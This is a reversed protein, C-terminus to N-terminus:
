DIVAFYPVVLPDKRPDYKPWPGPNGRVMVSFSHGHAKQVKYFLKGPQNPVAFLTVTEENDTNPELVLTTGAGVNWWRGTRKDQLALPGGDAPTEISDISGAALTAGPQKVTLTLGQLAALQTRDVLAFMRHRINRGEAAGIEAGLKVPRAKEDTVEFFGVTLFVAFCNSRTTVNNYLKTLLEYRQYPHTFAPLKETFTFNLFTFTKVIEPELLRQASPDNPDRREETCFLTNQLGRLDPGLPDPGRSGDNIPNSDASKFGTGFGTFPADALGLSPKAVNLLGPSRARLLRWYVTLPDASDEFRPDFNKDGRHVGPDALPKFLFDQAPDTTFFCNGPQADCLALFVEPDYLTNINVKGPLRGGVAVGQVRPAATGAEVMEFLRYLLTSGALFPASDSNPVFVGNDFHRTYGHPPHWSVHLLEVPSILPRDLHVPWSFPRGLQKLLASDNPNKVMDAPLNSRFYNHRFFTHQPQGNTLPPTPFLPTPLAQNGYPEERGVSQNDSPKPTEPTTGFFELALNVPVADMYDVTQYPNYPLNPNFNRPDEVPDNPPLNPCLLRRLVLVQPPTIIFGPGPPNVGGRQFTMDPSLLSCFDAGLHPDSAPRHGIKPGLVFFGANQNPGPAVGFARNNPLVAKVAASGGFDKVTANLVSSSKGLVNEPVAADELAATRAGGGDAIQLIYPSYTPAGGSAPVQLVAEGGGSAAFNPDKRPLPNVLEVWTNVQYPQTAGPVTNKGVVRKFTDGVPNEMQIYAENILLRPLETGFVMRKNVDNPSAFDVGAPNNPDPNWIFPTSYDDEDIYDVINVAIQALFRHPRLDFSSLPPRPRDLRVPGTLAVLTNYIERALDTRDKQAALFQKGVKPDNWDLRRTNPDAAPYPTLARNLDIRPLQATLGRWTLPDYESRGTPPKLRNRMDVPQAFAVGPASNLHFIDTDIIMPTAGPRDLDWSLTTVLQRTRPDALNKPLLRSLDGLLADAGTGGSRLLAATESPPFSRNRLDPRVANYLFPHNAPILGNDYGNPDFFPFCQYPPAQLVNTTTSFAPAQPLLYPLTPSGLARGPAPFNVVCDFDTPAYAHGRTSFVPAPGAPVRGAGYRGLVRPTGNAPSGLLLNRYETGATLVRAPNVEWPGWGQNSAHVQGAGLLNGATNLNVRNDLDLILPAVLMKYKRGDAAVMVPADIDMWISDAGGKGWFLNKVDGTPEAASPFGPGMENPRLRATLYKGQPTTWNPNNDALTGFGSAADFRHYSPALLAGDAKVAALFFANNDPYTYNPNAGVYVGLPDTPNRRTGKLGTPSYREPDRLFGDAPFYMYNPLLADDVGWPNMVGWFRQAVFPPQKSTPGTHLRGLGNFPKDNVLPWPAAQSNAADPYYWGYMNRALSQGRLASQVGADDQLDYIFQGLFLALAQEPDMDPATQDEAQKAAKSSLASSDAYLVFALGLVAFLTLLSLVVILIVGRRRAGPRRSTRLLM